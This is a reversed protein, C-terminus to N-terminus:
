EPAAIWEMASLQSPAIGFMRRCVRALHAGDAFGADHAADTIMGGAAMSRAARQLRLWLIYPRMPTGVEASFLHALRSASVGAERAVAELRVDGRQLLAPLGLVARKVAPHQITPRVDDGVLAAIMRRASSEAARWDPPDAWASDALGAGADRWAPASAASPAIRKLMRGTRDDPDVYLMVTRPAPSVIAHPADAPVFFAHGEASVHDAARVVVTADPSLIIQHAHHAHESTPLVPGAYLLRGAGFFLRGAWRQSQVVPRQWAAVRDNLRSRSRAGLM